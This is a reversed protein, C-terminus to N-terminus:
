SLAFRSVLRNLQEAANALEHASAAIEETSASTEQTSASVQQTAASSGEAVTAVEATASVLEEVRRAIDDVLGGIERFASRTTEVTSVSTEAQAAGAEVARVARETDGQIERILEAISTAAGQSEEALKRVEDAVVAFGKGQEGARAAEIAANLALLNTQGAITTITEVITGIRESKVSLSQIDETIQHTQQQLKRMAESAEEAAQIGARAATSAEGAARGTLQTSEQATAVMRVQREAGEAVSSVANAIEGVARGAEDSTSAIDHSSNGVNAAASGVESIMQRLNDVMAAFAHGLTDRDSRPEIRVTLDGAAIQEAAAANSSLYDIMRSFASVTKGLEDCSSSEVHQELDGVSIGEAAALMQRIRGVLSRGLAFALGIALLVAVVGLAVITIASSRKTSSFTADAQKQEKTVKTEYATMADVLEDAVDNARGTVLATAGASRHTRALTWLQANVAKWDAYTAQVAALQPREAADTLKAVAALDQEFVRQDDLFDAHQAPTLVYRTQSFHMDSSAARAEGIAEVKPTAGDSVQRHAHALTSMANFAVAIVAVLLAVVIGFALYLKSSVTLRALRAGM